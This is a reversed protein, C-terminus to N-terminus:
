QTQTEELEVQTLTRIVEARQSPTLKRCLEGVADM